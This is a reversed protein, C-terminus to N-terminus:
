SELLLISRTTYLLEFGTDEDEEESAAGDETIPKYIPRTLM